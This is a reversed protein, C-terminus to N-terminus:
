RPLAQRPPWGLLHCCAAEPQVPIAQHGHGEAAREMGGGLDVRASCVEHGLM